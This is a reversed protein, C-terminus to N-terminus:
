RRKTLNSSDELIDGPLGPKTIKRIRIKKPVKKKRAKIVHVKVHKPEKTPVIDVEKAAEISELIKRIDEELDDSTNNTNPTENGSIENLLKQLEDLDDDKSQSPLPPISLNLEDVESIFDLPKSIPKVTKSDQSFKLKEDVDCKVYLEELLNREDYGLIVTNEYIQIDRKITELDEATQAHEIARSFRSYATYFKEVNLPNNIEELYKNIASTSPYDFLGISELGDFHEVKKPTELNGSMSELKFKM